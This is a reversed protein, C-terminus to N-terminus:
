PTPDKTLDEYLKAYLAASTTWSVDSTMAAKQLLAWEAPKAFLEVLRDISALIADPEPRDFVLGTAAGKQLAAHNADIVTDALGGVRSVVPICGYRLGYLQTLGCPEFRSPILIADAGAQVRHSLAEDYTVRVGVRGPHRTRLAEFAGEILPEGTGVIVLRVGREVIEDAIEAVVDLGKQWTLRSVIALIPEDAAELEFEAEIAARTKGGAQLDLLSFPAEILTDRAPNWADIDIGNVIGKVADGRGRLLGDLGMGGSPTLIERAYTPSVTTVRDAAHIGAKLFGVNGYYELGEISWAEKPFGLEPFIAKPYNGQFALNHITLVTKARREGAMALYAPALAGQWDHAHLIDPAYGEIAGQAIRAGALSLAAFRKWNDPHDYGGPTIYPGGERDFLTPADLLLLDLGEASVARIAAETNLLDPFRCVVKGEGVMAKVSPYAPLLTRTEIGAGNLAIPLAGAVDALGGTKIFPFVESAVSLVRLSM